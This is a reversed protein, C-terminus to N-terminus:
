KSNNQWPSRHTNIESKTLNTKCTSRRMSSWPPHNKRAAEEPHNGVLFYIDCFSINKLIHREMPKLVLGSWGVKKWVAWLSPTFFVVKSPLNKKPVGFAQCNQLPKKMEFDRRTLPPTKRTTSKPSRSVGGGLLEAFRFTLKQQPDPHKPFQQYALDDINKENLESMRM